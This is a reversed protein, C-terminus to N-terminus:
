FAMCLYSLTGFEYARFIEKPARDPSGSGLAILLPVFHEPRPVAMRAHPAAHEYNLLEGYGPKQMQELLWEDFQLAWPEPESQGWKVARLNHVTVGSGIVLIDEADLGRLVNGIEIQEQPSLFPHVSVQVVPVDAEPYMKQLLVWSGHDLGRSTDLRVPIGAAELKAQLRGALKSSGRAPYKIRYMEEPFGYFDYITEYVEDSASITLVQSEWHATFIVIAQPKVSQGLSRLFESYANEQIALMPSGHALFLPEIM